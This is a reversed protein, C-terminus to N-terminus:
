SGLSSMLLHFLVTGPVYEGKGDWHITHRYQLMLVCVLVRVTYVYSGMQVQQSWQHTGAPQSQAPQQQPQQQYGGYAQQMYQQPQQQAPAGAGYM